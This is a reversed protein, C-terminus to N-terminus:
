FPLINNTAQYLISNDEGIPVVMACVQVGPPPYGPNGPDEPISFPAYSTSDIPMTFTTPSTVTITGTQQNLQTMGDASPIDIRVILYSQYGHPNVTTITLPHANTIASIVNSYPYFYPNPIVTCVNSLVTM